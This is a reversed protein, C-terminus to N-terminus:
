HLSNMYARYNECQEEALAGGIAPIYGRPLFFGNLMFTVTKEAYPFVAELQQIYGNEGDIGGGEFRPVLIGDGDFDFAECNAWLHKNGADCAQSLHRFMESSEKVSLRGGKVTHGVMDQPAIIDFDGDGNSIRRLFEPNVGGTEHYVNEGDAYPSILFPKVPSLRSAHSRLHKWREFVEDKCRRINAEESEYWGYFAPSKGYLSYLENMIDVTNTPAGRYTHSLGIFVYQGNKEAARLIAGIPDNSKINSRPFLNSSYHATNIREGLMSRLQVSATIIICKINLNSMEDVYREWDEETMAKTDNTFSSCPMRDDPPGLM